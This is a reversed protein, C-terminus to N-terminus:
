LLFQNLAEVFHYIKETTTKNAKSLSSLFTENVQCNKVVIHELAWQLNNTHCECVKLCFCTRILLNEDFILEVLYTYRFSAAHSSYITTKKFDM